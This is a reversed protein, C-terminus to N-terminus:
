SMSEIIKEMSTEINVEFNILKEMIYNKEKYEDIIKLYEKVLRKSKRVSFAIEDINM